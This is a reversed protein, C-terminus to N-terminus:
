PSRTIHKSHPQALPKKCHSLSLLKKEYCKVSVQSKAIALHKMMCGPSPEIETSYDTIIKRVVSFVRETDANSHPLSLLCKALRTLLPCRVTGNTTTM